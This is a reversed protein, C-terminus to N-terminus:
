QTEENDLIRLFSRVFDAEVVGDNPLGHHKAVKRWEARLKYEFDTGILDGNKNLNRQHM